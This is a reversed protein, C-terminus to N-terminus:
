ARAIDANGMRNMALTTLGDKQGAEFGARVLDLLDHRPVGYNIAIKQVEVAIEYQEQTLVKM